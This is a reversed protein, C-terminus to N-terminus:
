IKNCCDPKERPPEHTLNNLAAQMQHQLRRNRHYATRTGACSSRSTRSTSTLRRPQRARQDSCVHDHADERAACRGDRSEGAILNDSGIGRIKLARAAISRLGPDSRYPVGRVHQMGRTKRLEKALSPDAVYVRDM